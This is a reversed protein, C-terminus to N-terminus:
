SPGRLERPGAARQLRDAIAEGLGASWAGAVAVIIPAGGDDLQRLAAFLARAAGADDDPLAAVQVAAGPRLRAVASASALLGLAGPTTALVRAAEPEDVLWVQARPAYHSALTGPAAPSAASASALARGLVGEIAARPVGGPRLLTPAAGSVDVITSEVGVQCPGGDLIYGVDDGLDAAVHDATTPSVAGFRNASPAALPLDAARLLALALPHAPVRLGVTPGGGAVAATVGAGRPVILTLPGPWFAAALARADASPAAAYRALQAAEALHVIVPHGSPRGKVAYIRAVAAASTADAALGYVTETPMAVLGGARLVAAAAAM